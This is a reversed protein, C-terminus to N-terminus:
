PTVYPNFKKIKEVIQKPSLGYIIFPEEYIEQDFGDVLADTVSVEYGYKILNSALYAIGIPPSCHKRAAPTGDSHVYVKGPPFLLFVKNKM